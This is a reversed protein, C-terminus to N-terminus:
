ASSSASVASPLATPRHTGTAAVRARLQHARRAGYDFLEDLYTFFKQYFVRGDRHHEHHRRSGAVIRGPVLNQPSWPMDYGCHLELLLFTIVINHVSRSMPHAGLTRLALISCLADITQEVATLRVTDCARVEANAHHKGHLARYFRSALPGRHMAAHSWWFYLDYLFLGLGVEGAIRGITPPGLALAMRRPAFADTTASLFWLPLLYVAAELIWGKYWPTAASKGQGARGRPVPLKYRALWPARGSNVLWDVVWWMHGWVFFATIALVPEFMDHRFVPSAQLVPWVRALWSNIQPALAVCTAVALGAGARWRRIEARPLHTADIDQELHGERAPSAEKTLPAAVGASAAALHGGAQIWAASASTRGPVRRGLGLRGPGLGGHQFSAVGWWLGSFSWAVLWVGTL